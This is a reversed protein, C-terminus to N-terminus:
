KSVLEIGVNADILIQGIVEPIEVIAGPAIRNSPAREGTHITHRTTNQVVIVGRPPVELLDKPIDAIVEEIEVEPEIEKLEGLEEAEREANFEEDAEDIEPKKVKKKAM